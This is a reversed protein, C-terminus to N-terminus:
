PRELILAANAGGFGFSNSLAIRAPVSRGTLPLLDMPQTEPDQSDLNLTPPLYGHALALITLVAEVSGAGGLTHGLYSKTSSTPVRGLNEGFVAQLARFESLDNFPTGTGHLNIYDVASPEVGSERLAARICRAAAGGEPDPQTLHFGDASTAAGRLIARVPGGRREVDTARELILIGYGEGLLMGTRDRAFPRLGKASLLLLSGFGAVTYECMPDFGGAIVLDAHGLRLRDLAHQLSAAGSACANSVLVALGEVDFRRAARRLVAEAPWEALQRYAGRPLRGRSEGRLLPEASLMGVLTSGLLLERRAPKPLTGTGQPDLRADVLAQHITGHLHKATRDLQGEGFEFDPFAQDPDPAEAGRSVEYRSGDFTELRHFVDRERRLARLTEEEGVGLGTVIGVGSVVVEEAM